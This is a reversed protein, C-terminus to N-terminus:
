SNLEFGLVVNIWRNYGFPRIKVVVELRSSTVVNQTPDVFCKVGSDNIDNTDRSLDDGMSNSIKREVASEITKAYTAILTGDSNTPVDDLLFDLLADYSFRFAENITRRRSLYHYDDDIACALPDDMVFYGARSQHTTFTIYGKDYLAECDYNEVPLDNIFLKPAKLAGNNVKGANVKAPFAALRGAIVGMASGKSTTVGSLTETDGILIGVSNFASEALDPLDVKNGTFAYGELITFFPAYKRGIYDEFLTQAKTAALLVDADMGATVVPVATSDNVTFLGRIKGNASNLLNEVPTIGAVPTFWESVKATKAIGYIWVESGSGAEDYFESLAKFLRHNDISDTLKLNAVDKMSKVQYATNLQFGGVVAVASAVIGFCGTDLPTVAGIVGNNFAISIKPKM